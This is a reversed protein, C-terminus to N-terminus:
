DDTFNMVMQITLQTALSESCIQSSMMNRIVDVIDNIKM